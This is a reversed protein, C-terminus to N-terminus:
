RRYNAIYYDEIIGRAKLAEAYQRASRKDAFHSVRVQYWKKNGSMAENWYADLGQKKLQDVFRHAHVSNLYAAVQITFPDTVVAEAPNAKGGAAIDTKVLYNVTNILLIAIGATLVALLAGAAARKAKRSSQTLHALFKIRKKIRQFASAPGYVVSKSLGHMIDVVRTGLPRWYGMKPSPLAPQPPKFAAHMASLRFEDLGRLYSHAKLLLPSKREAEPAWRVCAAVGGLLESEEAGGELAQLYIKLAWEDARRERIFLRALDNVFPQPAQDDAYCVRRYAQLAPFDTRELLLYFRALALQVARNKPLASGIRFALEQHEERLGGRSQIQNLWDEAVEEDDPRAYLYAVIFSESDHSKEARALYFRALRSALLTSKERKRFPSILFSDFMAMARRFADEAETYMGDRERVGADYVLRRVINMGWQNLAWGTGLFFVTLIAAAPLPVWELGIRSQIAPLVWLCALGGLLASLWM